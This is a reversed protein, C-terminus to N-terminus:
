IADYLWTLEVFHCIFFCFMCIKFMAMDLTQCGTRNVGSLLRRRLTPNDKCGGRPLLISEPFRILVCFCKPQHLNKRWITLMIRFRCLMQRKNCLFELSLTNANVGNAAFCAFNCAVINNGNLLFPELSLVM